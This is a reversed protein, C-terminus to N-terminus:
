IEEIRKLYRCQVGYKKMIYDAVERVVCMCPYNGVYKATKGNEDCTYVNYSVDVTIHKM